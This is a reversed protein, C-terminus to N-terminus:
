FFLSFAQYSEQFFLEIKINNNKDKYIPPDNFHEIKHGPYELKLKGFTHWKYLEIYEYFSTCNKDDGCFFFIVLYFNDAKESIKYISNINEDIHDKEIFQENTKNM